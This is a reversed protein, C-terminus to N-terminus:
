ILGEKVLMEKIEEKNLCTNNESTYRGLKLKKPNPYRYEKVFLEKMQPLLVFMEELEIARTVEEETMLEEYIKEGPQIGISEVKIDEPKYGFRPALESILVEVLDGTRLTSMKLIFVEGGQALETAKFVLDISQRISMVFRTMEPSTLTVPGGKEIQKKFLPIASGRSGTVNGFRVTSFITKHKGKYYNAATFLKEAFLKSVGMTNCPNTAKDTSTLIVRDVGEELAAEIVNQTGILNTKLAEFPNYECAIVHKLAATHYIIDIDRIAYAIRQADRIDGILFRVRKDERFEQRMEFQKEEDRSFVRVVTPDFKLLQRVIEKGLTGTGGTVLMKKGEFFEKM